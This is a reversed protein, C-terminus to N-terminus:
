PCATLEQANLNPRDTHESELVACVARNHAAAINDNPPPICVHGLCVETSPDSADLNKWLAMTQQIHTTCLTWTGLFVAAALVLSFSTSGSSSDQTGHQPSYKARIDWQGPRVPGSPNKRWPFFEVGLSKTKCTRDPPPASRWGAEPNQIYASWESVNLARALRRACSRSQYEEELQATVKDHSRALTHISASAL